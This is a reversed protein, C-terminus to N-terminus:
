EALIIRGMGDLKLTISKQWNADDMEPFDKRFFAGRSERRALGAALVAEMVLLGNKLERGKLWGAASTPRQNGLRTGLTLITELGKRMGAEDREIGAHEWAAVRLLAQVELLGREVGEGACDSPPAPLDSCAEMATTSKPASGAFAAAGRGAIAGGVLCETLANGGMRNAGHLGGTVEGAAYLGPVETAMSADVCVGGMFFHTIPAIACKKHRLDFSSKALHRLSFSKNWEEEAVGTFDLYLGGMRHKRWFLLSSTDRFRIIADNLDRCDGLEWLVERGQGDVAKSGPPYPPFVLFAPLGKQAFGIPYFQVFEMDRLKCGARLALTYGEGVAGPPNDHRKYLASGGGTALVVAGARILLSEGAGDVGHVGVARAGEKVVGLCHFGPINWVGSQRVLEKLAGVLRVGPIQSGTSDEVKFGTPTNLLPAGREKLETLIARGGEVIAQVLAKDNIGRGVGMTANFHQEESYAGSASAFIGAAMATCTNKGLAGKTLLLVDRGSERAKLAAALGAAGSGVVAVDTNITRM